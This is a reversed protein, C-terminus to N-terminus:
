LINQLFCLYIISSFLPINTNTIAKKIKDNDLDNKFIIYLDYIFPIFILELGSAYYINTFSALTLFSSVMNYSLILCELILTNKKGFIVPVTYIKNQKDGEIDTIDLLLENYLSGFFILSLEVIFLEYNKNLVLLTTSSAIATFFISFSVLSACFINKLLFIKKIIPTYLYIGFLSLNTILQLNTSLYLNLYEILGTLTIISFIAEIKTIEGTILPRDKNNVKDIEIDYVDNIIMSTSMVLSTIISSLIFNSNHLLNTISPNSLYGGSFSLFATPIINKARSLKIFSNAKNQINNIKINPLIKFSYTQNLLLFFLIIPLRM